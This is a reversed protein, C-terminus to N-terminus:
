MHALDIVLSIMYVRTVPFLTARDLRVAVKIQNNLTILNNTHMYASYRKDQMATHVIFM